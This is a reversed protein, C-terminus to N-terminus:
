CNGFNSLSIIEKIIMFEKQFQNRLFTEFGENKTSKTRFILFIVLFTNLILFTIVILEM